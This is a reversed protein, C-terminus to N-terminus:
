PEEKLSVSASGPQEPSQNALGPYVNEPGAGGVGRM